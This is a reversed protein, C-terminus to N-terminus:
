AGGATGGPMEEDQGMEAQSGTSESVAELALAGNVVAQVSSRALAHLYLLVAALVIFGALPGWQQPGQWPACSLVALRIYLWVLLAAVAGVFATGAAHMHDVLRDTLRNLGKLRRSRDLRSYWYLVALNWAQRRTRPSPALPPLHLAREASRLDPETIRAIPRHDVALFGFIRSAYAAFYLCSLVYGLGGSLVFLGAVVALLDPAGASLLLGTTATVVQRDSVTLAALVEIVFAIGPLTFRLYRGFEARGKEDM